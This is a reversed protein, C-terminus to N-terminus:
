YGRRKRYAAIDNEMEKILQSSRIAQYVKEDAKLQQLTREQAAIQNWEIIVYAQYMQHGDQKGARVVDQKYVTWDSLSKAMVTKNVQNFTNVATIDQIEEQVRRSTEEIEMELQNGLKASAVKTAESIANEIKNSKETGVTYINGKKNPPNLYWKPIDVTSACAGLILLLTMTGMLKKNTIMM